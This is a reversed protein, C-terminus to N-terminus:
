FRYVFGVPTITLKRDYYDHVTRDWLGSNNEATVSITDFINIAWIVVGAVLVVQSITYPAKADEYYKKIDGIYTAKKYKDYYNMAKDYYYLGAGALLIEAGLFIEGRMTKGASMQGWGPLIASKMINTSYNQKRDNYLKLIEKRTELDERALRQKTFDDWGYKKPDTFKEVDFKQAFLGASLIILLIIFHKKM